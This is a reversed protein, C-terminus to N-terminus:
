RAGNWSTVGCHPDRIRGADEDIPLCLRAQATKRTKEVQPPSSCTWSRRCQDRNHHPHICTRLCESRLPRPRASGADEDSDLRQRAELDDQDQDRFWQLVLVRLQARTLSSSRRLCRRRLRSSVTPREGTRPASHSESRRRAASMWWAPQRLSAFASCGHETGSGHALPAKGRGEHRRPCRGHPGAHLGHGQCPRNNGSTM